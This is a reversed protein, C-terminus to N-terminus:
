KNRYAAAEIHHKKLKQHVARPTIEMERAVASVNGSFRTLADQLMKIEIERAVKKKIMNLNGDSVSDSDSDNLEVPIDEIVPGRTFLFAREFVNELERVNGPWDYLMVKRWAQEGLSKKPKQYKDSLQELFYDALAGIDERRDRLPPIHIPVINLRYFLDKRFDGATVLDKLPRNSAAVIRVDAKIVQRGGVREFEGEQLIRLLKAQGSLSLSDIEDLFLTGTCAREFFGKHVNYAGTFAGKEHGFLASEILSEAIAGCNVAVFKEQNRGSVTHIARAIIEKGVGTEGGILVNAMTPAVIEISNLVEGMSPSQGIVINRPNQRAGTEAAGCHCWNQATKEEVQVITESHNSKSIIAGDQSYYADGAQERSSNRDLHISVECNTDGAAIRKKLEVKAYGFNRAAIGGFVSSTMQCLEPTEKVRDGFPCRTNEVRIAGVDSSVRSFGGGIQNKIEIIVDAYQDLTLAGEYELQKRATAEFCSSASLGLHQIYNDNDSQELSKKRGLNISQIVFAQLFSIPTLRSLQKNKM